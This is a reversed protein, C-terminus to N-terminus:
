SRPSNCPEALRSEGGWCSGNVRRADSFWWWRGRNPVQSSRNAFEFCKPQDGKHCLTTRATQETARRRMMIRGVVIVGDRSWGAWRISPTLGVISQWWESSTGVGPHPVHQPDWESEDAADQCVIIRLVPDSPHGRAVGLWPLGGPLPLRQLLRLM